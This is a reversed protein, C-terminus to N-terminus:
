QTKEKEPISDWGTLGQAVLRFYTDADVTGLVHMREVKRGDRYLMNGEDNKLIIRYKNGCPEVAFQGLGIQSSTKPDLKAVLQAFVPVSKTIADDVINKPINLVSTYAQRITALKAKPDAEQEILFQRFTMMYLIYM